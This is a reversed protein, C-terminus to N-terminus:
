GVPRVRAVVLEDSAPRSGLRLSALPGRVRNGLDRSTPGVAGRTAHTFRVVKDQVLSRRRRGYTPDLFYMLGAGMATGGIWRPKADM